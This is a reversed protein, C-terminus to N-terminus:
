IIIRVLIKKSIKLVFGTRSSNGQERDMPTGHCQRIGEKQMLLDRNGLVPGGEWSAHGSGGLSGTDLCCPKPTSSDPSSHSAVNDKCQHPSWETSSTIAGYELCPNIKIRKGPPLEKSVVSWCDQLTSQNMTARDIVKTRVAQMYRHFNEYVQRMSSPWRGVQVVSGTAFVRFTHCRPRRKITAHPVLRM